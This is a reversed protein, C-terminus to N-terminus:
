CSNVAFSACGYSDGTNVRFYDVDPVGNAATEIAVLPEIISFLALSTKTGNHSVLVAM